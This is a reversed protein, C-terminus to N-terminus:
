PVTITAASISWTGKSFDDWVAITRDIDLSGLSHLGRVVQFTRGSVLDKGAIDWSRGGDTPSQDWIVIHGSLAKRPGFQPRYQGRRLTTVQFGQGTALNKGEIVVSGDEQWRTWIVVHGSTAPEALYDVGKPRAVVFLRGTTLDKGEIDWAGGHHDSLNAWVVTHRSIAPTTQEGGHPSVAFESKTTLDAGYIHRQGSRNDTWVITKGSVAAFEQSGKHPSVTVDHGTMLDLAHIKTNVPYILDPGSAHTCQRCDMWVVLRGSIAPSLPGFPPTVVAGHTSIPFIRGSVIDKGYICTRSGCNAVWVILHGSIAPSRRGGGERVVPFARVTITGAGYSHALVRPTRNPYSVFSAFVLLVPLLVTSRHFRSMM